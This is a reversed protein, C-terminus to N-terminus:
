GTGSYRKLGAIVEDPTGIAGILDLTKDTIMPIVGEVGEKKYIERIEDRTNDPMGIGQFMIDELFGFYWALMPKAHNRAKDSDDDICTLVHGHIPVEKLTRGGRTAGKEVEKTAWAAYASHSCAGLEIFDSIEGALRLMLKNVVGFYIPIQKRVPPMGMKLNKPIKFFTSEISTPRGAMLDRLIITAEKLTQLPQLNKVTYGYAKMKWIPVGLGLEFRGNSLEDLGMSDAAIATLQRIYPTIVGIG